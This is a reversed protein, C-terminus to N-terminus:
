KAQAAALRELATVAAGLEGYHFEFTEAEVLSRWTELQEPHIEPDFRPMTTALRAWADQKKVPIFRPPGEAGRHLFLVYQICCEVATAIEPLEGTKVEISPKGTVGPVAVRGALVPFLRAADERLRILGPKGAVKRTRSGRIAMTGDDCVFTWDQLACAFALTSKGAGSEGCLLFGKGERAVCSAHVPAFYLQTLSAYVMSELFHYRFFPRCGVTRERVFAYAFHRRYDCVAFDEASAVIALLSGQGRFVPVATPSPESGSVAVRVILCQGGAESERPGGWSERAAAIVDESNTQVEVPYGLVRFRECLALEVGYRLPDPFVLAAGGESQL